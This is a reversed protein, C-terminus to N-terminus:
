GNHNEESQNFNLNDLPQQWNSGDWTWGIGVHDPVDVLGLTTATKPNDCVVINIVQNDNIQVYGM